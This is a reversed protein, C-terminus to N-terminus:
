THVTSNTSQKEASVSDSDSDQVCTGTSGLSQKLTGQMSIYCYPARASTNVHSWGIVGEVVCAPDSVVAPVIRMVHRRGWALSQLSTSFVATLSAVGKVARFSPRLLPATPVIGIQHCSLGLRYQAANTRRGHGRSRLTRSLPLSRGEPSKPHETWAVARSPQLAASSM